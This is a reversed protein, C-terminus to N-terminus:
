EFFSAYEMSLESGYQHGCEDCQLELNSCKTAIKLQETHNKIQNYTRKDCNLVFESIYEPETVTVSATQISHINAILFKLEVTNFESIIENIIQERQDVDTILNAQSLKKRCQFIQNSFDNHNQFNLPRFTVTLGNLDLPKYWISPDFRELLLRLDIQYDSSKECKPCVSEIQINSGNSAIRIAILLSELDISPTQWADQINPICNQILNVTASGNILADPTLMLIEDAATMSYVSLEGNVPLHISGDPWYRGQSPLSIYLEPQRFHAKLPNM